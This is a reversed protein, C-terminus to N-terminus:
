LVHKILGKPAQTILKHYMERAEADQYSNIIQMKDGVRKSVLLMTHDMDRSYDYGIILCDNVPLDLLSQRIKECDCQEGPDLNAGCKSCTHYFSM